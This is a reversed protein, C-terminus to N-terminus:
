IEKEQNMYPEAHKKLLAWVKEWDGGCADELALMTVHLKEKLIKLQEKNTM